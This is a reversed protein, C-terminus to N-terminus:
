KPIVLSRLTPTIELMYSIADVMAPAPLNTTGHRIHLLIMYDQEVGDVVGQSRFFNELIYPKGVLEDGDGSMDTGVAAYAETKGCIKFLQDFFGKGTFHFDTLYTNKCSSGQPRFVINWGASVGRVV